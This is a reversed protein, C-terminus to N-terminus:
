KQSPGGLMSKLSATGLRKEAEEKAKAMLLSSLTPKALTFGIGLIWRLTKFRKRPSVIKIKRRGILGLFTAAGMTGAFWALPRSQISKKIQRGVNMEDSVRSKGVTIEGRAIALQAVLERKRQEAM